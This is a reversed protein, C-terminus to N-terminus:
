LSTQRPILGLAKLRGFEHVAKENVTHCITVFISNRAKLFPMVPIWRSVAMRSAVGVEKSLKGAAASIDQEGLSESLEQAPAQPEPSYNKIERLMKLLM